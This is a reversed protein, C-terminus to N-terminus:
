DWDVALTADKVEELRVVITDAQGKVGLVVKSDDDTVDVITARVRKGRVLRVHVEQGRFRRWHEPWRIPREIGPSSVELTYNLGLLQTEDLWRELGRSVVACDQSTVGHGPLSGPRDIRTELVPRAKSGHRRVDVVEFGLEDVRRRIESTLQSLDNNM